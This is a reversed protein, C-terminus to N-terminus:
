VTEGLADITPNKIISCLQALAEQAPRFNIAIATSIGCRCRARHVSMHEDGYFSEVTREQHVLRVQALGEPLPERLGFSYNKLPLRRRRGRMVECSYRAPRAKFRSQHISKTKHNCNLACIRGIK